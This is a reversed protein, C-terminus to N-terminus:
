RQFAQRPTRLATLYGVTALSSLVLLLVAYVAAMQYNRADYAWSETRTALVPLGSGTLALVVAFVQFAATTRLILAVQVTPKLLPLTVERFRRWASAGLIAAAEGLEVPISQIGSMIVVMVLSISRWTEALVVAAVLGPLNDFDLFGVPHPTVHLEQLMSNLYGHQTFISLWVLGAALDSIALPFSWVYLFFGRGRLRTQALVAMTLAVVLELPIVIVLLLLTNRVALEFDTDHFLQQVNALTWRGAATQFAVGLAGLIPWGLFALLFLLAPAMLLYPELPKLRGRVRGRTSRRGKQVVAAAGVQDPVSRHQASRAALV